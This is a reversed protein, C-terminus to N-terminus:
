YRRSYRQLPRLHSKWRGRTFYLQLTHCICPMGQAARRAANCDQCHNSGSVCSNSTSMKLLERGGEGEMQIELHIKSNMRSLCMFQKSVFTANMKDLLPIITKFCNYFAKFLHSLDCFTNTKWLIQAEPWQIWVYFTEAPNPWSEM